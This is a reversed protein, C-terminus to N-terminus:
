KEKESAAIMARYVIGACKETAGGPTVSLHAYGQLLMAETPERPVVVVVMDDDPPIPLSRVRKALEKLTCEVMAFAEIQFGGEPIRICKAPMTEVAKAAAELAARYPSQTM